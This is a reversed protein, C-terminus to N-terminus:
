LEGLCMLELDPHSQCKACFRYTKNKYHKVGGNPYKIKSDFMQRASCVMRLEFAVAGDQGCLLKREPLPALAVHFIYRNPTM